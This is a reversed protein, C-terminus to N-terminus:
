SIRLSAELDAETFEAESIDLAWDVTSYFTRNATEFASEQAAAAIAPAVRSRFALSGVRGRIVVHRLAAAWVFLPDHTKLGDIVVDELV